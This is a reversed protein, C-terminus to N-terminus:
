TNTTVHHTDPTRKSWSTIVTSTVSDDGIKSPGFVVLGSRDQLVQIAGEIQDLGGYHEGINHRGLQALVRGVGEQSGLDREDVLDRVQTLFNASIDVRDGAANTQIAANARLEKM